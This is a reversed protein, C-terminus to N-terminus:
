AASQKPGLSAARRMWKRDSPLALVPTNAECLVHYSISGQRPGFLGEGRRRMMIVLGANSDWAIKAIEDAPKGTAVRCEVGAWQVDDKLRTLRAHARRSRQQNRRTADVELWPPESAPEVVHVLLLQTGLERAALAAALTDHRDRPGIDVPAVAWKGPWRRPPGTARHRVSFLKTAATDPTM